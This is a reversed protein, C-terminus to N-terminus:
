VEQLIVFDDWDVRQMLRSQEELKRAALHREKEENDKFFAVADECRMLIVAESDPERPTTNDYIQKYSRYLFQFIKFNPHVPNFAFDFEINNQEKAKLANYFAPGYVALHQATLQILELEFPNM